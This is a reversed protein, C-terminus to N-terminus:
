GRTGDNVQEYKLPAAMTIKTGRGPESEIEIHGGLQELRERISFLGFEARQAAMAQVEAPDFGVGDDEVSVCIHKDARRVSVKVHHAQAHKVVNILLERVNRFLIARIDDDLPKDQGDDQFETEIGHKEQVQETLWEAVAAEFGLNYLIPNSLDFTLTRTDDIVQALCDSVNKLAESLGASCESKRLQDLKIKSIVLSQGIQDHLETALRHREREETLSLQSALSKLQERDDLLKQQAQKRDAIDDIICLTRVYQGHEDEIASSNISVDILSGDKRVMKYEKNYSFGRALIEKLANQAKELYDPHIIRAMSRGLIEEKEYGLFERVRDNCDEIIGQENVSTILNAATEFISRFKKESARLAEEAKKRETVDRAIGLSLVKDAIRVPFTRVEVDVHSGDKRRVAYETPETPEGAAVKKLNAAAKLLDEASLLGTEALSRGILEDKAFGVLEEAARNGDAFRGELDTLYIADPASEFLIKLREQSERLVREARKHETIDTVVGLIATQGEYQILKSANIAEIRQGQRNIVSYDYPEVEEGRLHQAFKEQILDLSEPAILGLFDFDPSYLEERVYGTVQECKKNAYVIKGQKNIFIMNPSQEALSRFKEESERLAEEAKRRETIDQQVSVWRRKGSINLTSICVFSCFPTGDKKRNSMEGSWRGYKKLHEVAEGAFRSNEGESLNNLISIHQGVLEGREYGFMADFGPNTFVITGTEDSVSVGEMMNELIEARMRLEDEAKSHGLSQQLGGQAQMPEANRRELRKLHTRLARIEEVFGRRDKGSVTM